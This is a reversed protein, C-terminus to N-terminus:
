SGDLRLCAGEGGPLPNPHPSNGRNQEGLLWSSRCNNVLQNFWSLNRDVGEEWAENLARLIALCCDMERSFAMVAITAIECTFLLQSPSSPLKAQAQWPRNRIQCHYPATCFSSALRIPEFIM